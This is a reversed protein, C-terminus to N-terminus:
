SSFHIPRFNRPNSYLNRSKTKHLHLVNKSLCVFDIYIFIYLIYIYINIYINYIYICITIIQLAQNIMLGNTSQYYGPPYM